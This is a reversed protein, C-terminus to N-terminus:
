PPGAADEACCRAMCGCHWSGMAQKGGSHQSWPLVSFHWLSSISLGSLVTAPPRLFSGPVPLAGLPCLVPQPDEPHWPHPLDAVFGWREPGVFGLLPNKSNAENQRSFACVSFSAISPFGMAPSVRCMGCGCSVTGHSGGWSLIHSGPIPEQLYRGLHTTVAASVAGCMLCLWRRCAACPIPLVRSPCCMAPISKSPHDSGSLHRQQPTFGKGLLFTGPIRSNAMSKHTHSGHAMVCPDPDTGGM